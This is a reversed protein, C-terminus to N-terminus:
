WLIDVEYQDFARDGSCLPIGLEQAQGILLRDFPDRHWPPLAAARLAATTTIALSDCGSRVLRDPVYTAPPEPLPLRGLAHKIGIEWVSAASVLVDTRPDALMTRSAAPIREPDTLMWLWTHTDVLVRM